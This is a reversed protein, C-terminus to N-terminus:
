ILDLPRKAAYFVEGCCIFLYCASLVPAAYLLIGWVIPLFPIMFGAVMILTIATIRHYYFRRSGERTHWKNIHHVIMSTVQCGGIIFYGYLFTQDLNLLSKISIGIILFVQIIVDITKFEKM